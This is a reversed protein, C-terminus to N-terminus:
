NAKRLDEKSVHEWDSSPSENGYWSEFIESNLKNTKGFQTLFTGGNLPIGIPDESEEETFNPYPGFAGRLTPMQQESSGLDDRDDEVVNLPSVLVQGTDVSDSDQIRNQIIRFRAMVSAEGEELDGVSKSVWDPFSDSSDVGCELTQYMPSSSDRDPLYNYEGPSTNYENNLSDHDARSKLLLYRAQVPNNPGQAHDSTAIVHSDIDTAYLKSPNKHGEFSEKNEQRAEASRRRSKLIKYRAMVSADVDDGHLTKENTAIPESFKMTSGDVAQSNPIHTLEVKRALDVTEHVDAPVDSTSSVVNDKAGDQTKEMDAKVRLFRAKATMACLSAEADLWLNKYLLRRQDMEEEGRFNEHLVNKIAEMMDFDKVSNPDDKCSVSELVRETTDGVKVAAAIAEFAADNVMQAVPLEQNFSNIELSSMTSPLEGAMLSMSANLNAIVHKVAISHQETVSARKSFCYCRLIESLNLLTKLLMNVDVNSESIKSTVQCNSLSANDGPPSSAHNNESSSPVDLSNNAVGPSFKPREGGESVQIAPLTIESLVDTEPKNLICCEKTSVYSEDAFQLGDQTNLDFCLPQRTQSFIEENGKSACESNFPTEPFKGETCKESFFNGCGSSDVPFSLQPAQTSMSKCEDSKKVCVDPLMGNSVAFPSFYSSSAGRWCPSDEAPNHVETVGSMKEVSYAAQTDNVEVDPGVSSFHHPMQPSDQSKEAGNKIGTMTDLSLSERIQSSSTGASSSPPRRIVISSQRKLGLPIRPEVPYSYNYGASINSEKDVFSADPNVKPASFIGELSSSEVYSSKNKIIPFTSATSTSGFVYAGSQSFHDGLSLGTANKSGRFNTASEVVPGQLHSSEKPVLSSDSTPLRSGGLLSRSDHVGAKWLFEDLSLDGDPVNTNSRGDAFPHTYVATSPQSKNGEDALLPSRSNQSDFLGSEKSGVVQAYESWKSQENVGSWVNGWEMKHDGDGDGSRRLHTSASNSLLDYRDGSNVGLSLFGDKQAPTSVYPPYYSKVGESVACMSNPFPDYSFPDYVGSVTSSSQSGSYGYVTPSSSCTVNVGVTPAFTSGTASSSSNNWLQGASDYYPGYMLVDPYNVHTNTSNQKQLSREVRFPPALPSLNSSSSSSLGGVRYPGSGSSTMEKRIM